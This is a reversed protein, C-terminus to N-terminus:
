VRLKAQLAPEPYGIPNKADQEDLVLLFRNEVQLISELHLCQLLVQLSASDLHLEASRLAPTAFQCRLPPSIPSLLPPSPTPFLPANKGTGPYNGVFVRTVAAAPPQACVPVFVSALMLLASMAFCPLCTSKSSFSTLAKPVRPKGSSM